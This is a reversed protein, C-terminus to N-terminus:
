SAVGNGGTPCATVAFRGDECQVIELIDSQDFVSAHAKKANDWIRVIDEAKRLKPLAAQAKEYQEKTIKV